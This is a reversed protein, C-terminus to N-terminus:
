DLCSTYYINEYLILVFINYYYVYIILFRNIGINNHYSTLKYVLIYQIHLSTLCESSNIIYEYTCRNLRKESYKKQVDNCDCRTIQVRFDNVRNLVMPFIYFPSSLFVFTSLSHNHHVVPIM